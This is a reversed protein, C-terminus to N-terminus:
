SFDRYEHLVVPAILAWLYILGSFWSSIMKIWLSSSSEGFHKYSEQPTFWNTITMMLYLTGLALIWYFAPWSSYNDRDEERSDDGTLRTTSSVSANGGTEHDDNSVGTIREMGSKTTLRISSYIVCVFCILLSIFSQGDMSGNTATWFTPKCEQQPSSNLASWTMYTLYLALTSAQLLGSKPNYEQVSPLISVLSLSVIMIMNISILFKHLSCGSGGYYVYFLIIGIASLIYNALSITVLLCLPGRSDSDEMRSVLEDAVEDAFLILFCVQILLYLFSGIFGFNKWVMGFSSDGPIYFTGVIGAILIIFKIPWFGRHWAVRPDSSRRVRIMLLGFIVFFMFTAFMLRYVALYGTVEKCINEKPAVTSTERGIFLNAAEKLSDLTDGVLPTKTWCFPVKSELWNSVNPQTMIWGTITVLLLMFSYMIRAGIAPTICNLCSCATSAACCALQGMGCVSLLAGM